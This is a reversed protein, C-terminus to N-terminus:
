TTTVIHRGKKPALLSVGTGPPRKLLPPPLATSLVTLTAVTLVPLAPVIFGSSDATGSAHVPHHPGAVHGDDCHRQHPATADDDCAPAIVNRTGGYNFPAVDSTTGADAGAVAAHDMNNLTAMAADGDDEHTLHSLASGDDTSANPEAEPQAYSSGAHPHEARKAESHLIEPCGDIIHSLEQSLNFSDDGHTRTSDPCCNHRRHYYM